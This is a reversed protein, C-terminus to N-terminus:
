YQFIKLGGGVGGVGTVGQSHKLHWGWVIALRVGNQPTTAQRTLTLM